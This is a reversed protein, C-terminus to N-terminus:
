FWSPVDLDFSDPLDNTEEDGIIEEYQIENTHYEASDDLTIEAKLKELRVLFDPIGNGSLDIPKEMSSLDFATLDKLKISDFVLWYKFRVEEPTNLQITSTIETKSSSRNQDLEIDGLLLHNELFSELDKRLERVTEYDFKILLPSIQSLVNQVIDTLSSNVHRVKNEDNEWYDRNSKNDTQEQSVSPISSLKKQKHKVQTSISNSPDLLQDTSNLNEAERHHSESSSDSSWFESRFNNDNDLPTDDPVPPAFHKFGLREKLYDVFDGIFAEGFAGMLFAIFPKFISSARNKPKQFGGQSQHQWCYVSGKVPKRQCPEGKVTTAQCHQKDSM